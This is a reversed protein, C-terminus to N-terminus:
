SQAALAMVDDQVTPAEETLPAQAAVLIGESADTSPAPVSVPTVLSSRRPRRPPAEKGKAAWYALRKREAEEEKSPRVKRALRARVEPRQTYEAYWTRYHVTRRWLWSRLREFKAYAEHQEIYHGCLDSVTVDKGRVAKHAGVIVRFIGKLGGWSRYVKIFQYRMQNVEAESPRKRGPSEPLAAMADLLQRAFVKTDALLDQYSRTNLKWWQFRVATAELHGFIRLADLMKPTFAVASDTRVRDEKTLGVDESVESAIAESEHDHESTREYDESTDHDHEEHNETSM